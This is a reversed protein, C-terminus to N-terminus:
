QFAGTIEETVKAVEEHLEAKNGNNDLDYTVEFNDIHQETEHQLDTLSFNDGAKRARELRVEEDANVRIIFFGERKLAELENPQRLDTVIVNDAVSFNINEFTYNVWINPDVERMKQGLEQLLRRPKEEDKRAYIEPYLLRVTAWIGDSFAFPVVNMNMKLMDAVTDKGSRMKGCIAVKITKGYIEVM